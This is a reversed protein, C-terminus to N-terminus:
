PAGGNVTIELPRNKKYETLTMTVGSALSAGRPDLRPRMLQNGLYARGPGSLIAGGLVRPAVAGAVGGLVAGVGPLAGNGLIGGIVTPVGVTLNRVSSRSATGSDPLPTMTAQGERALEGLDSQGRAYVRKGVNAAVASRLSAPSILGMASQEGGRVAADTLINLNRYRRRADRWEGVLPSNSGQLNREVADDMAGRIDRLAGALDPNTTKKAINDVETRMARYTDGSITGGGQTIKDVIDNIRNEVAAPRVADGTIENFERQITALDTGLQRDAVIITGAVLNDFESGIDNYAQDIVEPTARRAGIGAERLAASTFQEAQRETLNAAASGGLESEAYRLGKSGTRQGASLEVGRGELADAAATREASAPVPTIIKRGLTNGIASVSGGLLQGAVEAGVNGPAMENAIAAGTGSGLTTALESAITRVPQVARSGAGMAPVINRGFERGVRRVVRAPGTDHGPRIAGTEEMVTRAAEGPDPIYNPYATERGLTNAIFPGVSLAGNLIQAPLSMIDAIGENVGSMGESVYDMPGLDDDDVYHDSKFKTWPGVAGTSPQAAGGAAEGSKSKYNDWPGAM